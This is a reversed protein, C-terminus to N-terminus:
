RPELRAAYHIFNLEIELQTSIDTALYTNGFDGLEQKMKKESAVTSDIRDYDSQAVTTESTALGREERRETNIREEERDM